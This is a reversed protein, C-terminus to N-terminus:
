IFQKLFTMQNYENWLLFFINDYIFQIMMESTTNTTIYEEQLMSFYSAQLPLQVPVQKMCPGGKPWIFNSKLNEDGGAGRLIGRGM